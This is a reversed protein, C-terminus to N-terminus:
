PLNYFDEDRPVVANREVYRQLDDLIRSTPWERDVLKYSDIYPDFYHLNEPEIYATNRLDSTFPFCQDTAVKVNKMYEELTDGKAFWHAAAWRCGYYCTSNPIITYKYKTPLKKLYDLHRNFWHFLVISDYMSFDNSELCIDTYSLNRTISLILTIDDHKEKLAVALEDNNMIFYHIGLDYYKEITDMTFNKQALICVSLGLAQILKIRMVYEEYTAPYGPAFITSHRTNDGDDKWAAVYVFKIYPFLSMRECLAGVYDNDFNCPIYVPYTTSIKEPMDLHDVASLAVTIDKIKENILDEAGPLLGYSYVIHGNTALPRFYWSRYQGIFRGLRQGMDLVKYEGFLDMYGGSGTPTGTLGIIRKVKPRVKMLAKHRAATHSKFSSLEDLVVMDFDFPVGSKEILWPINERNIIYIDADAKLASVREKATGVVISYRLSKFEDWKEIEAKWTHKAVRLPAVILIKQAEFSDLLLLIAMLTLSTKGMGMDLLIAAIPHALIFDIAYRQYSHPKYKM